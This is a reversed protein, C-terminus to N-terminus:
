SKQQTSRYIPHSMPGVHIVDTDGVTYLNVWYALGQKYQSVTRTDLNKCYINEVFYQQSLIRGGKKSIKMGLIVNVQLCIVNNCTSRFLFIILFLQWRCWNCKLNKCLLLLVVSLAILVVLVQAIWGKKPMAALRTYMKAMSQFGRIDGSRLLNGPGLLYLGISIFVMLSYYRLTLHLIGFWCFIKQVTKTSIVWTLFTILDVWRCMLIVLFFIGM